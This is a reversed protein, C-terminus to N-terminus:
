KEASFQTGESAPDCHDVCLLSFLFSTLHKRCYRMAAVSSVLPVEVACCFQLVTPIRVRSWCAGNQSQFTYRVAAQVELQGVQHAILSTINHWRNNRRLRYRKNQIEQHDGVSSAFEWCAVVAFRTFPRNRNLTGHRVYM